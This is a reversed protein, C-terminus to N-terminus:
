DAVLVFDEKYRVACDPCTFDEPLADFTTGAPYGEHIDGRAEDYTYDCGPCRYKGM